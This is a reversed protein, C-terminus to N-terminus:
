ALWFAIDHDAAAIEKCGTPSSRARRRTSARAGLLVLRPAAARRRLAPEPALVDELLAQADDVHGPQLPGGGPVDQHLPHEPEAAQARRDIEAIAEEFRGQHTYIRAKNFAM